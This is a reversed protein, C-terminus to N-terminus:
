ALADALPKPALSSDPSGQTECEKAWLYFCTFYTTKLYGTLAWAANFVVFFFFGGLISHVRDLVGSGVQTPDNKM